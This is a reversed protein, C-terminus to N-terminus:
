NIYDGRQFKLYETQATIITHTAILKLNTDSDTLNQTEQLLNGANNNIEEVVPAISKLSINPDVLKSSYTDLMGLLKDTQGSVIDSSKIVNLDQSIIENLASASTHEMQSGEIKDRKTKYLAKSLANEFADTKNDRVRKISSGAPPQAAENIQNIKNM